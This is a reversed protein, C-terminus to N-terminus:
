TGSCVSDVPIELHGGRSVKHKDGEQWNGHDNETQDDRSLCTDLLEPNASPSGLDSNQEGRRYKEAKSCGEACGRREFIRSRSIIWGPIMLFPAEVEEIKGDLGNDDVEIQKEADIEAEM